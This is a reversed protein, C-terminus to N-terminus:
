DSKGRSELASKLLVNAMKNITRDESDALAVIKKYENEKVRIFYVKQGTSKVGQTTSIAM